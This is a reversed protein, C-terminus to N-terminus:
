RWRSVVSTGRFSWYRGTHFVGRNPIDQYYTPPISLFQMGREQLTAVSDIIHPTSLAIHQVGAGRHLDLFEQIQSKSDEEGPENIPIIISGDELQVVKSELGTKKGRIDFYRTTKFGYIRQYFEVWEEMQGRPVNNTLHDIRALRTPLPIANKDTDVQVFDPRFHEMPREVLENVIDGVGAISFTKYTGYSSDEESLDSLIKGGRKQAEAFAHRANEVLFSIKSVGEGHKNFYIRSPAQQNQDACLLFRIQGQGFLETNKLKNEFTKSFGLTYFLKKTPSQLTDCTFELHDIALLGLPNQPTIKSM